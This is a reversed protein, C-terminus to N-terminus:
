NEQGQGNFPSIYYDFNQLSNLFLVTYFTPLTAPDKRLDRGSGV